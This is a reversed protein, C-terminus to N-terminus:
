KNKNRFKHIELHEYQIPIGFLDHLRTLYRAADHTIKHPGVIILEKVLIDEKGWYAYELLQPIAQRICSKVSNAIKIEYFIYHCKCKVVLDIATGQGTPIETGVNKKGFQISLKKYLETQLENHALLIEWDKSKTAANIIGTKKERHGSKFIFRTSSSIDLADSFYLVDEDTINRIKSSKESTKKKKKIPTPTNCFNIIKHFPDCLFDRLLDISKQGSIEFDVVDYPIGHRNKIAHCHGRRFKPLIRKKPIVFRVRSHKISASITTYGEGHSNFRYEPPGNRNIYGHYESLYFELLTNLALDFHRRATPNNQFWRHANRKKALVPNRPELSKKTTTM